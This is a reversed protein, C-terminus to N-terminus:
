DARTRVTASAAAPRARASLQGLQRPGSLSPTDVSFIPRPDAPDFKYIGEEHWRKQLRPEVDKHDYNKPFPM